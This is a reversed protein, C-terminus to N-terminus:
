LEPIVVWLTQFHITFTQLPVRDAQGSGQQEPPSVVGCHGLNICTHCCHSVVAVCDCECELEKMICCKFM